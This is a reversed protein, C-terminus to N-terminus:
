HAPLTIVRSKQSPFYSHFFLLKLELNLGKDIKMKWYSLTSM